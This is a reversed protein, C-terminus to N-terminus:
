RELEDWAFVFQDPTLPSDVRGQLVQLEGSNREDDDRRVQLRVTLKKGEADFQPKDKPALRLVAVFDGGKTTISTSTTHSWTPAEHWNGDEDLWRLRVEAGLVPESRYRDEVLKGRLGTMGATFPYDVRPPLEVTYPQASKRRANERLKSIEDDKLVVIEYPLGQPEISIKELREIDEDLWVFLRGANVIPKGQLGQAKVKVGDSVRELTVADLLELAFLVRRIDIKDRSEHVQFTKNM